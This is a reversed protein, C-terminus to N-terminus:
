VDAANPLYDFFGFMLTHDLNPDIGAGTAAATELPLTIAQGPEIAARGDGLTILPMDITIGANAKAMIVDLTIDANNQVAAIAAVDAFYVTMSGGVEFIGATADFAGLVGVAKLQTVNNNISVNLETAFAFLADPAESGDVVTALRIRSFDSSTNFADSEVLAPATAAAHASWLTTAGPVTEHKTSVWSLDINLKDAQPINITVENPVSGRLYEAQIGTPLAAPNPVGLTREMTYTRRKILTGTENKLARGVFIQVTEATSVEVVMALDSKDVEVAGAVVSRARKWGNNAANLFQNGAGGGTDGGVFFWEGPIIGLTLFNLTTSTIKPWTGTVDVDLDGAAGQHGVKTVTSGVPASAETVLVTAVGINPTAAIDDVVHLGNNIATAFGTAWLLDNVVFSALDSSVADLTLGTGGGTTTTAGGSATPIVAYAGHKEIAVATVVGAAVATVRAVCHQEETGTDLTVQDNVAYGTGGANVALSDVKLTALDFEAGVSDVGIIAGYGNTGMRVHGSALVDGKRRMDAFCFGQLQNQMNTQTWDTNIGGSADLDTVVGKKRQRSPNIPNRAITTVQGGFDSYSNPELAEWIGLNDTPPDAPTVQQLHGVSGLSSAPDEEAIRLGTVDSDVKAVEVAM